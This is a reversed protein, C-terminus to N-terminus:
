EQYLSHQKASMEIILSKQTCIISFLWAHWVMNAVHYLEALWLKALCVLIYQKNEVVQAKQLSGVFQFSLQFKKNIKFSPDIATIKLSWIKDVYCIM